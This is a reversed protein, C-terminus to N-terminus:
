RRVPRAAAQGGDRAPVAAGAAEGGARRRHQRSRDGALRRVGGRQECDGVVVGGLGLGAPPDAGRGVSRWSGPRGPLASRGDRRVVSRAAHQSGAYLMNRLVETTMVVIPAESNISNDGTLLGVKDRRLPQGPRRVEPQETGQDPDHLLMEARAAARTPGAFEGVLTKGSGTPAAVLVQHGDELAACARLQFEDLEFDYLARFEKM